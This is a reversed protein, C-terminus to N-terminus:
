VSAKVFPILVVSMCMWSWGIGSEAGCSATGAGGRSDLWSCGAGAGESSKFMVSLWSIVFASVVAAGVGFSGSGGEGVSEEVCVWCRIVVRALARVGGDGAWPFEGEGDGAGDEINGTWPKKM